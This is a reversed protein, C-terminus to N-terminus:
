IIITRSEYFWSWEYQELIVLCIFLMLISLLVILVRDEQEYSMKIFSIEYIYQAYKYLLETFQVPNGM